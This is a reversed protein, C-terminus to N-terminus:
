TVPSTPMFVTLTSLSAIQLNIELFYYQLYAGALASLALSQRALLPLAPARRGRYLQLARRTTARHTYNALYGRAHHQIASWIDRAHARLLIAECAACIMLFASAGESLPDRDFVLSPAAILIAWLPIAFLLGIALGRPIDGQEDAAGREVRVM